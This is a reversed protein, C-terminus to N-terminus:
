FPIDTTDVIILAIAEFMPRNAALTREALQILPTKTPPEHTQAYVSMGDYGDYGMSVAGMGAEAMCESYSEEEEYFIEMIAEAHEVSIREFLGPREEERKMLNFAQNLITKDIDFTSM